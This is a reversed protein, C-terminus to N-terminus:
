NLRLPRSPPSRHGSRDSAANDSRTSGAADSHSPPKSDPANPLFLGQVRGDGTKKSEVRSINTNLDVWLRDGRVVNKNQTLVVNGTLTLTNSKVDFVGSDGTATQEKQTLIVGGKAELRSIQQEGSGALPPGAARRGGKKASDDEYYVILVKAEIVTDGQVLRVNNVFTATKDKDRLELSDSEISIPEKRNQSLGQIGAPKGASTQATAGALPLVALAVALGARLLMPRMDRRLGRM